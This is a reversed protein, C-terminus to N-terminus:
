IDRRYSVEKFRIFLDSYQGTNQLYNKIDHRITSKESESNDNWDGISRRASKLSSSSIKFFQELKMLFARDQGKDKHGSALANLYRKMQFVPVSINPNATIKDYRSQDNLVALLNHLDTGGVRMVDFNEYAMTDRVYKKAFDPDEYRLIELMLIMLFASKAIDDATKGSLTSAGRYLRAEVLEQLLDLMM